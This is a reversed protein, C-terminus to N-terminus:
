FAIKTAKNGKLCIYVDGPVPNAVPMGQLNFYTAATASEVNGIGMTGAVNMYSNTDHTKYEEVNGSVFANFINGRFWVPQPASSAYSLGRVRVNFVVDDTSSERLSLNQVSYVIVRLAGDDQIRSALIHTATARAPNLWADPIPEDYDENDIHVVEFGEPLYIDTQFAGYRRPASLRVPMVGEQDPGLSFDKIFFYGNDTQAVAALCALLVLIATLLKKFM